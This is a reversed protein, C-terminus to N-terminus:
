GDTQPHYTISFDLRTSLAEHLSRWFKNTFQPRRDSVITMPVGHLRMICDIYVKAYKALGYSTKVPPKGHEVKVQQCTLCKAVYEVIDKKMSPWWYVMKLDHYMKTAGLHVTYATIHAEELIDERLNDRDPVYTRSEYKLLGDDGYMYKQDREKFGGMNGISKWGRLISRREAFLHALSGISKRSLADAVMIAKGLHYQTTYDYDKLLEMWQRQWKWTMPLITQEHRKLQRSAYAIVRGNQMLGCGLGVRSADCYVVYGGLGSPLSLVPTSILCEKLRLFNDECQDTLEFKARKRTLKRYDVCLRLSGDKKKVFLILAGLSSTSPRIFGKKGLEQLQEQLVRMKMQAM